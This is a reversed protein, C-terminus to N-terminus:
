RGYQIDWDSIGEMGPIVQEIFPTVSPKSAQGTYTQTGGGLGSFPLVLPILTPDEVALEALDGAMMPLFMQLLRDGLYVPVQENAAGIDWIFKATPHLKNALFNIMIDKRTEPKYGQGFDYSEGSGSSTYKGGGHGMLNTMLDVPTIGTETEIPLKMWDPRMRSGLVLWQQFGGGADFRTDGIKVKGYDANNPDKSVDAGFMMEAISAFTWWAGITRLMAKTYEKRIQPQSMIYTAPNMMKMRSTLLKPSFLLDALVKGARKFDYDKAGVGFGEAKSYTPYAVQAKLPGRGTAVNTFEALEKALVENQFPDLAKNGDALANAKGTKVLDNLTHVRLENLFLTFARNSAKIYRGYLPIQEAVKSRLAEERKTLKSGMDTMEVGMREAWSPKKGQPRFLPDQGLEAMRSDYYKQSGFAKAQEFTAKFWGRTGVLPLGQRFMASTIFPPDVSMLARPLEFAERLPSIKEPDKPGKKGKPPQPVESELIPTNPPGGGAGAKTFIFNGESDVDSFEFGKEKLAKVREPSAHQQRLKVRSAGGRLGSDDGPVNGTGAGTNASKVGTGSLIDETTAARGRSESYLQLLRQVEPSYGGSQGGTFERQLIDAWALGNRTGFKAYIEGLRHIFPMGHGMDLGGQTMTQKIYTQLYRGVRPDNLDADSIPPVNKPDESGVHAVEHMATVVTDLAADVPTVDMKGEAPIAGPTEFHAFPNILIASTPDNKPARPEPIHIGYITPDLTIGVRKVKAAWKPRETTALIDSIMQNISDNIRVIVPNTQFEMMEDPTMRNGPDFLVVEVGTLPDKKMVPMSDWLKALDMKKQSAFPNILKDKIINEIEKQIGEKISERQVPFPYNDHGEPVQPKMDIIIEKPIGKTSEDLYLRNSFQYMGNNLYVMKVSSSEGMEVDRPLLVEINSNGSDVDTKLISRDDVKTNKFKNGVPGYGYPDTDLTLDLNRSYKIIEEVMTRANYAEQDPKFQTIFTTGTTEGPDIVESHVDFGALLEDPTGSFTSKVKQGNIDKVTEVQFHSGGLMFTAKGVGKGGTAGEDTVKGSEHLNTYVTYLEEPSMGKGNDSIILKDKEIKISTKGAKGMKKTADFANQLGERVMVAPLPQNYGKTLEDAAKRVNVDIKAKGQGIQAQLPIDGKAAALPNMGTRMTEQAVTQTIAWELDDINDFNRTDIGLIRADNEAEVWRPNQNTRMEDQPKPIRSFLPEEFDPLVQEGFRPSYGGQVPEDVRPIDPQFEHPVMPPEPQPRAGMQPLVPGEEIMQLQHELNRGPLGPDQLVQQGFDQTSGRGVPKAMGLEMDALAQNLDIPQNGISGVEEAEIGPFQRGIGLQEDPIPPPEIGRRELEIGSITSGDELHYFPQPGEPFNFPDMFAFRVGGSPGRPPGPPAFVEGESVPFGRDIQGTPLNIEPLNPQQGPIPGVPTFEEPRDFPLNPQPEVQDAFGRKAPGYPTSGAMMPDGQGQNLNPDIPVKKSLTMEGTKSDIGMFDYGDRKLQKIQAPDYPIQLKILEDRTQANPSGTPDPTTEPNKASFRAKDRDLSERLKPLLDAVASEPTKEPWLRSLIPGQTNPTHLTGLTGGAAEIAGRGFRGAVETLSKEPDFFDTAAGGMEMGGHVAAPASLAKAGASIGRVVEPRLGARLALNSGGTALTAGINIPSTLDTALQGLGQGMGGVAGKAMATFRSDDLEPTTIWDGFQKGWEAPKQWLGENLATWAQSLFGPTEVSPNGYDDLDPPKQDFQIPKGFDDLDPPKQKPPYM